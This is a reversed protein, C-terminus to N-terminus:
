KGGTQTQKREFGAHGDFKQANRIGHCARMHHRYDDHTGKLPQPCKECQNYRKKKIEKM